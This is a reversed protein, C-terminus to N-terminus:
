GTAALYELMSIRRFGAPTEEGSKAIRAEPVSENLEQKALNDWDFM